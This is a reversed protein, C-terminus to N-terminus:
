DPTTMLDLLSKLVGNLERTEQAKWGDWALTMGWCEANAELWAKEGMLDRIFQRMQVTFVTGSFAELDGCRALDAIAKAVCYDLFIQHGFLLHSDRRALFPCKHVSHLAEEDTLDERREASGPVISELSVIRRVADRDFASEGARYMAL